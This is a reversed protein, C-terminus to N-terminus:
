RGGNAPRDGAQAARSRNSELLVKLNLVPGGDPGATFAGNLRRLLVGVSETNVAGAGINPLLESAKGIVATAPALKDANGNLLRGVLTFFNDAVAYLSEALRNQMEDGTPHLPSRYISDVAVSIGNVFPPLSGVVENYRDILYAPTKRQVQAVEDAFVVGAHFLPELTDAYTLVRDISNVMDQQLTGGTVISAQEIMTAMTNDALDRRMVRAGDRLPGANPSGAEVITVASIGFYNKPRFDLELDQKVGDILGRRLTASLEATGDDRSTLATVTGVEVGHLMVATGEDIGAGVRDTVISVRVADDGDSRLAPVVATGVVLAAAVTAAGVAGTRRLRRQRARESGVLFGSVM